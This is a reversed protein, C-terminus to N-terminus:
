SQPRPPSPGSWARGCDPFTPPGTGARRARDSWARAPHSPPKESAVRRIRPATISVLGTHLSSELPPALPCLRNWHTSVTGTATGTSLSSELPYLRNWHRNWHVSVIGTPLSSELPHLRNWHRNWHVSVIGTPLSSELPHLRNWHPHRCRAPLASIAVHSMQRPARHTTNACADEAHEISYQPPSSGRLGM